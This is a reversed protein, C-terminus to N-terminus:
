VQDGLSPLASAVASSFEKDLHALLAEIFRGHYIAYVETSVKANVPAITRLILEGAAKTPRLWAKYRWQEVASTFDGDKDYQWTKIHGQDILAYIEKLLISPDGTRITISM